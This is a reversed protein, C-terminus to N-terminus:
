RPYPIWSTVDTIARGCDRGDCFGGVWRPYYYADMIHGSVCLVLCRQGRRPKREEIKMWELTSNM